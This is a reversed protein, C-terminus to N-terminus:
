RKCSPARIVYRPELPSGLPTLLGAPSSRRAKIESARAEFEDALEELKASIAAGSQAAVARLHTAKERLYRIIDDAM